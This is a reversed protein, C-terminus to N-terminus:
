RKLSNKNLLFTIEKKLGVGNEVVVKYYGYKEFVTNNEFDIGNGDFKEETENYWYKAYVVGSLLDEFNVKVYNVFDYKYEVVIDKETFIGKSNQPIFILDYGEFELPETKYERGLKGTIVDSKLIKGDYDKYNVIVNCGQWVVIYENLIYKYWDDKPELTINQIEKKAVDNNTTKILKRKLYYKSPIVNLNPYSSNTNIYNDDEALYIKGSINGGSTTCGGDNTKSHYIEYMTNSYIKGGSMNFKGVYENSVMVGYYNNHILGGSLNLSGGVFIAWGNAYFDGGSVTVSGGTINETHIGHTNNYYIGGTINITGCSNVVYIGYTSNDHISLNNKLDVKGYFNDIFVAISNSYLNNWRGEQSEFKLDGNVQLNIGIGCRLIECSYLLATGRDYILIGTNGLGGDVISSNVFNVYGDAEVVISNIGSVGSSNTDIVMRDLTLNGGNQIVIFDSNQGYRLANDASEAVIRVPYNIYIPSSFDISQRVHIVSAKNQLATRFESENGVYIDTIGMVIISNEVIENNVEVEDKEKIEAFGEDTTDEIENIVTETNKEVNNEKSTEQNILNENKKIEEKIEPQLESQILNEETNPTTNEVIENKEVMEESDEKIVEEETNIINEMAMNKLEAVVERSFYNNKLKAEAKGKKFYEINIEPATKDLLIVIETKNKFSDIAIIKYYGEDSFTKGSEFDCGSVGEFNCSENNYYYQSCRIKTDDVIEIKIDNNRKILETIDSGCFSEKQGDCIVNIIPAVKDVYVEVFTVYETIYKALSTQVFLNWFIFSIIAIVCIKRKL